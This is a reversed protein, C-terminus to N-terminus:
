ARHEKTRTSIPTTGFPKVAPFNGPPCHFADLNNEVTLPRDVTGILHRSYSVHDELAVEFPNRNTGAEAVGGATSQGRAFIGHSGTGNPVIAAEDCRVLINGPIGDAGILTAIGPVLDSSCVDSSWDSIRM